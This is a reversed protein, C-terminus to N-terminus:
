KAAAEAAKAAKYQSYLETRKESNTEAVFKKHIEASSSEQGAKDNAKPLQGAPFGLAAVKEKTKLDSRAEISQEKAGLEKITGEATEFATNVEALEGELVKVRAVAEDREGTITALDNTLKEITSSHEAITGDRASIKALLGENTSVYASLRQSITLKAEETKPPQGGTGSSAGTAPDNAENFLGLRNFYFQHM